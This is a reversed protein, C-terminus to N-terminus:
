QAEKRLCQPRSRYPNTTWLGFLGARTEEHYIKGEVQYFLSELVMANTRLSIVREFGGTKEYRGEYWGKDAQYLHDINQILVESYPTKWLARMPFVAQTAVLAQQQMDDGSESVTNWPYGKVFIADIVFLPPRDTRHDTRATIIKDRRYRIQQVLFSKRALDAAQERFLREAPDSRSGAVNWNLELGSLLSPMSVIPSLMGTVREDRGDRLLQIDFLKVRESPEFALAGRADFGWSEFGSASYQQYGLRPYNLHILGHTGTLAAGQLNGDGDLADCVKWRLVVRDIYESFEPARQRTIRLWLLLRGLDIASWAGPTTEGNLGVM